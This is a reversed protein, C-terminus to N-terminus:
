HLKSILICTALFVYFGIYVMYASANVGVFALVEAVAYLLVVSLGAYFMWLSKTDTLPSQESPQPTLEVETTTNEAASDSVAPSSM